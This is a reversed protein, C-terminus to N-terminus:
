DNPPGTPGDSPVRSEAGSSEDADAACSAIITVFVERRACPKGNIHIVDLEGQSAMMRLNGYATATGIRTGRECLFDAIERATAFRSSETLIQGVLLRLRTLHSNRASFLPIADHDIQPFLDEVPQPPCSAPNGMVSVRNGLQRSRVHAGTHPFRGSPRVPTIFTRGPVPRLPVKRLRPRVRRLSNEDASELFTTIGLTVSFAGTGGYASEPPKSSRHRVATGRNSSVPTDVGVIARIGSGRIGSRGTRAFLPVVFVRCDSVHTRYILQAFM